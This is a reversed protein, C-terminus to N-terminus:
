WELSTTAKYGFSNTLTIKMRYPAIATVDLGDMPIVARAVIGDEQPCLRIDKPNAKLLLSGSGGVSVSVECIGPIHDVFDVVLVAQDGDRALFVGRLEPKEELAVRQVDSSTSLHHTHVSALEVVRSTRRRSADLNFWEINMMNQSRASVVGDGTDFIDDISGGIVSLVKRVLEQAAGKSLTNNVLDVKGIVSIYEVDLPHAMKGLRRLYEGGDEPRRLDRVAWSDFPVDDQAKRVASLALECPTKTLVSGNRACDALDTTVDWIKAMASGLHPTGITILRKVNHDTLRKCLYARAALGGMSYGVLIVRDAGTTRRVETICAELEDRWANISDSSNSFAVTFFDAQGSGAIVRRINGKRDAALEGGYTLGLDKRFYETAPGHWVDAKQGLGHLLIIPYPVKMGFSLCSQRLKPLRAIRDPVSTCGVGIIALLALLIPRTMNRRRAHLHSSARCSPAVGVSNHM